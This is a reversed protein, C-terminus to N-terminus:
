IFNDNVIGSAGIELLRAALDNGDSSNIIDQNEVEDTAQSPIEDEDSNRLLSWDRRCSNLFFM